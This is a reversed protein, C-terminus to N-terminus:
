HPYAIDIGRVYMVHDAFDLREVRLRPEGKIWWERLRHDRIDQHSRLGIAPPDDLEVYFGERANQNVFAVVGLNATRCAVLGFFIIQDLPQVGGVPQDFRQM